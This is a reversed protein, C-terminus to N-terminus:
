TSLSEVASRTPSLHALMELDIHSSASVGHFVENIDILVNILDFM